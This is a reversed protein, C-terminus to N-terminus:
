FSILAKSFHIHISSFFIESNCKYNRASVPMNYFLNIDAMDSNIQIQSCLAFWITLFLQATYRLIRINWIPVPNLCITKLAM